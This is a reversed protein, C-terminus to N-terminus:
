DLFFIKSNMDCVSRLIDHASDIAARAEEPEISTFSGYDGIHRREALRNFKLGMEESWAGARVLDHHVASRLAKHSTFSRDALVFHASVAQFAAYYARSAASNPDVALSVRAAALSKV